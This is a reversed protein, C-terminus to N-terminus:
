MRCQAVENAQRCRCCCVLVRAQAAMMSRIVIQRGSAPSQRRPYPKEFAMLPTSGSLVCPVMLKLDNFSQRSTRGATKEVISTSSWRGFQAFVEMPFPEFQRILLAQGNSELSDGGRPLGM